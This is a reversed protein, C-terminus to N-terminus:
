PSGTSGRGEGAGEISCRLSAMTTASSQAERSRVPCRSSCGVFDILVESVTEAAAAIPFATRYVAMVLLAMAWRVSSDGRGRQPRPDLKRRDCHVLVLRRAARSRVAAGSRCEHFGAAAPPSSRDMRTPLGPTRRRMRLASSCEDPPVFRRRTHDLHRSPTCRHRYPPPRVAGPPPAAEHTESESPPTIDSSSSSAAPRRREGAVKGSNWGTARRAVLPHAIGGIRGRDLLDNGDHAAGAVADM